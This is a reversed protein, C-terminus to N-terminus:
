KFLSLDVRNRAKEAFRESGAAISQTAANWAEVQQIARDGHIEELCLFPDDEGSAAILLPASAVAAALTIKRSIPM